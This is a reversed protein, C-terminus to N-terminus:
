GNVKYVERVLNELAVPIFNRDNSFYEVAAYPKGVKEARSKSLGLIDEFEGTVMYTKAFERDCEAEIRKNEEFKRRAESYKDSDHKSGGPELEEPIPDEDYIVIYSIQFANLVNTYLTLNFKGACDILSVSHDFIGLRRAIVPIIAKETAGEVLVVKRAFFVENRDPNFFRIMNFRQKREEDGEFLDTTVMVAKTGDIQSLKRILSLNRYDEINVFHSSHTCLLTQDTASIEKLAEYTARCSQPHLFLEPEEFAFINSRERLVGAEAGIHRRSEAAWVRMLAFILSRQLGHGKGEIGTPLGDDLMVNTGLQFLRDVDPADVSINVKVDWMSLAKQISDELERIEVMKEGPTEGEIVKKIRDIADRLQQFAPNFQAIRRVVVGLLRGLLTTSTTKTEETAERVAQVLHLEPLYGDLVQKYGAPNKRQEIRYKIREPYREKFQTIGQKYDDKAIRGTRPLFEALPLKSVVERNNYDEFDANLWPEEPMKMLAHYNATVKGSEELIYEKSLTLSGDVTWPGLKEMEAETLQNFRATLIIPKDTEHNFFSDENVGKVTTSFFLDLAYFFNSKGCNNEGVLVMFDGVDIEYDKLSRYHEAKFHRLKM